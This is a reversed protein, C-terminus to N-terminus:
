VTEFELAHPNLNPSRKSLYLVEIGVIQDQENLDVIIGASVEESEVVVSDDLSLYLADAERDIKLKMAQGEREPRFLIYRNKEPITVRNVIV